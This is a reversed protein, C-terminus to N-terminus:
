RTLVEITDGELVVHDGGVRQGDFRASPGWARAGRFDRV